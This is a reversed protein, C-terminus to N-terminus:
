EENEHHEVCPWYTKFDFDPSNDIDHCTMCQQKEADAKTLRVAKRLKQRLEDSGSLEVACHKEGPGHCDECGTNVLLPTKEKSEFGSQYPFFDGPDWGVVHCSICEPDFNRPPDLTALTDYAKAHLSKKWIDYSKEHCSQCKASGVFRGNTEAQPHAVPRLGLSAFGGTKLQDRLWDQYGTMLMKMEASPAFRSDLPVRQYLITHKADDLFGLVIAYMGKQGVTILLTKLGEVTQPDKPPVPHGDASVVINFEPFQEALAVTEKMTAQALLVLCDPKAKQLEPLVKKLATAPDTLLIDEGHVEKQYQEGLVGTVGIKMGGAEIVRSTPVFGEAILGVNASVFPGTDGAVSALLSAPLRLDDPGFTIANYGMARKSEVLTQFKQEAQPGFGHILDGVDLGIVPWGRQGTLKGAAAEGTNKGTWKEDPGSQRLQKFLTNRRSMGGKMRDLGACGCPEIYGEEMGTIIMALKPRPWDEFIPHNEKIPDFPVGSNKAINPRNSPPPANEAPKETAMKEAAPPTEEAVKPTTTKAAPLTEEAVTETVTKEATPGKADRLPNAPMALQDTPDPTAKPLPEAAPMAVPHQFEAAPLTVREAFKAAPGSDLPAAKTSAQPKSAAPKERSSPCGAATMLVMGGMVALLLNRM